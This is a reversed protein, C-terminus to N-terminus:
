VDCIRIGQKLSGLADPRKPIFKQAVFGKFGTDVVSKM